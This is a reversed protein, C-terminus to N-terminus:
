DNNVGYFEILKFVIYDLQQKTIDPYLPLSISRSYYNEANSCHNKKFGLNEFYSNLYIPRYHIGINIGADNLFKYIRRRKCSSDTQCVFLHWASEKSFPPLKLPLNKLANVYFLAIEKRRKVFNNIRKLQSLGLAAHLDSMRYNFGLDVMDYKWPENADISRSIGHSSLRRMKELLIPDQSTALGGEASTIIKAPHLSFVTIDSYECYGILHNNQKSGLAHAADEIIKIKHKRCIQSIKEMNCPLGTFHVVILVKPLTNNKKAKYVKQELLEPCINGTESNVDVFDVKAGCMLAANASAVFSLPTTWVLDGKQVNLSLCALHLSSTASNSAVAGKSDVMEAIESEFQTVLKGQTIPNHHLCDAVADIDSQSISHKSYPIPIEIKFNKSIGVEEGTFDVKHLM